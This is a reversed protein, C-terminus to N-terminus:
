SNNLNFLRDIAGNSSNKGSFLAEMAHKSNMHKLGFMNMKTHDINDEDDEDDEDECM